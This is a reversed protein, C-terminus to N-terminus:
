SATSGPGASSRAAPILPHAAPIHHNSIRKRFVWYSWTQYGLVVPTIALAVVTMVKLTYDTSSANHVTLSFAANTSSPMVDPYLTAFLSAVTLALTTGTLAFAWGERGMWSAGVAGVLAVAALLTLAWSLPRGDRFQGWLLYTAAVVVAVPAL